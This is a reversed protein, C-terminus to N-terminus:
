RKLLAAHSHRMTQATRLDAEDFRRALYQDLTQVLEAQTRDREIVIPVPELGDLARDLTAERIGRTLAEARM